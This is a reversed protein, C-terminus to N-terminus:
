SVCICVKPNIFKNTGIKADPYITVELVGMDYFKSSHQLVKGSILNVVCKPISWYVRSFSHAHQTAVLQLCYHTVRCQNVVLSGMDFVDQLLLKPVGKTFKMSLVTYASSDTPLIEYVPYSTIPEFPDLCSDFEDLLKIAEDSFRVLFRLISHNSWSWLHSLEQLVLPTNSYEKLQNVQDNSFFKIGHVHDSAMMAECREVLLKPDHSQLLRTVQEIVLSFKDAVTFPKFCEM